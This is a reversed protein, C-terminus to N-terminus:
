SVIQVLHAAVDTLGGEGADRAAQDNDLHDSAGIVPLLLDSFLSRKACTLCIDLRAIHWSAAREYRYPGSEDRGYLYGGTMVDTLDLMGVVRKTVV